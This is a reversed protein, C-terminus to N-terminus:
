RPDPLPPLGLPVLSTAPTVDFCIPPSEVVIPAGLRHFINCAYNLVVQYCARGVATAAPTTISRRYTERGALLQLGVTYSPIAHRVQDADSLWRKAESACIRERFVKFEVDIAEGQPVSASLARAGEYIIPPDRDLIMSMLSFAGAFALALVAGGALRLPFKM